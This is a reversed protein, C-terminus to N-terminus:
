ESLIETLPFVFSMSIIYVLENPSPSFCLALHSVLFCIPCEDLDTAANEAGPFCPALQGSLILRRLKRPDLDKHQYLGQVRTYREDVVARRRTFKNGM